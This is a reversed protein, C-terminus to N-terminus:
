FLFNALSKLSKDFLLDLLVLPFIVPHTLPALCLM